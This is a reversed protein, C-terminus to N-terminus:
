GEWRGAKLIEVRSDFLSRPFEHSLTERLLLLSDLVNTDLNLNKALTFLNKPPCMLVFEEIAFFVKDSIEVRMRM